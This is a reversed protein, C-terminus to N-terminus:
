RRKLKNKDLDDPSPKEAERGPAGTRRSGGPQAALRELPVPSIPVMQPRELPVPIVPAIRPGELPVPSVRVAEPRELPVPVVAFESPDVPELLVDVSDGDRPVLDRDGRAHSGPAHLDREDPVYPEAEDLEALLGSASLEGVSKNGEPLAATLDPGVEPISEETPPGATGEEGAGLGLLERAIADGSAIYGDERPPPYTTPRVAGIDPQSDGELVVPVSVEAKPPALPKHVVFGPPRRATLCGAAITLPFSADAWYADIMQRVHWLVRGAEDGLAQNWLQKWIAHTVTATFLERSSAFRREIWACDVRIRDFGIASVQKEWEEPTLFMAELAEIRPVLKPTLDLKVAVERALDLLEALTGALPATLVLLGDDHLVRIMERLLDERDRRDWWGYNSVVASFVKEDCRLRPLPDSNFFVRSAVHDALRTRALELLFTRGEQAVLRTKPGLAELLRQTGRGTACAIELVMGRDPPEFRKVMLDAFPELWQEYVDTDYAAALWERFEPTGEEAPPPGLSSKSRTATM